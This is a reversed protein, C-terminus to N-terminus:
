RKYTPKIFPTDTITVPLYKGRVEAYLTTGTEAHDAAVYGMAVPAGVSPGFGGSTVHGIETEGKDDAFLKAPPRIPARGEAKLGVRLRKAGDALQQLIIDAGPFGGERDGGPRRAKQMGWVLAAEVPTTTEDIDNGYLCLGAELRLSDRAGLGIPACDEHALLARALAEAHEAPVSIEFGDEGTYGSRSIVCTVGLIECARVDMFKMEAVAPCLPALVAEAKPGQLALLAKDEFHTEVACLDSLYAKMHALDADKCAANVIILLHDGRNAVMLDDLIGGNENTFFAYRQRGPKLGLIDVPVLKELAIAADALNGSRPKLWVQGMHSVDFLGAKERTHLHEKLVGMPYQVPMDYGAFPVMRAGLELHLAHLPTKELPEQSVM